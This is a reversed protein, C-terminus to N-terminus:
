NEAYGDYDVCDVFRNQLRYSLNNQLVFSPLDYNTSLIDARRMAFSSMMVEQVIQINPEIRM